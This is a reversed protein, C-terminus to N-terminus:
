QRACKSAVADRARLHAHRVERGIRATWRTSAPGGSAGFERRRPLDPSGDAAVDRRDRQAREGGLALQRARRAEVAVEERDRAEARTSRSTAVSRRPLRECASRTAICCSPVGIREAVAHNTASRMLPSSCSCTADCRRAAARRASSSRPARRCSRRSTGTRASRRRGGPATALLRMRRVPVGPHPQEVRARGSSGTASAPRMSSQSSMIIHFAADAGCGHGADCRAGFRSRAAVKWSKAGSSSHSSQSACAGTARSPTSRSGRDDTSAPRSPEDRRRLAVSKQRGFGIAPGAASALVQASARAPASATSTKPASSSSGPRPRM